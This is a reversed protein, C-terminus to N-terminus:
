PDPKQLVLRPPPQQCCTLHGQFFQSHSSTLLVLLASVPQRLLVSKEQTVDRLSSESKLVDKASEVWPSEHWLLRASM